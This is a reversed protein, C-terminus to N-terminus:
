SNANEEEITDGKKIEELETLVLIIGELRNIQVKVKKINQELLQITKLGKEKEAKAWELKKKVVDRLFLNDEERTKKMRNLTKQKIKRDKKSLKKSLKGKLKM